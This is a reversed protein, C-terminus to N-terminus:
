GSESAYKELFVNLQQYYEPPFGTEHGGTTDTVFTKPENAANFLKRALEYPVVRDNTAHCMLLPGHFNAIKSASDLRTRMLRRVPVFWYIKAAVDPLNNFTNQLILGQASGRAALDVAVGGGLSRGLLLLKSADCGAREALWQRAARGDMLIGPENPKGESRGYGRYDFVFVALNYRRRLEDAAYIRNTVNGANGHCYLLFGRPNAPAIYWGHLKTGDAATFHVDEFEIRPSWEGIPYKSPLFILQEELLVLAVLLLLYITLASRALRFLWSRQQNRRATTM